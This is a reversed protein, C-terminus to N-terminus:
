HRLDQSRCLIPLGAAADVIPPMVAEALSFLSLAIRLGLTRFALRFSFLTAIELKKSKFAAAHFDRDFHDSSNFTIRNNQLRPMSAWARGRFRLPGVAIGLETLATICPCFGLIVLCTHKGSSTEDRHFDCGIATLHFIGPESSIFPAEDVPSEM